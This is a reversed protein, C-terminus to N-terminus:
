SWFLTVLLGSRVDAFDVPPLSPRLRKPSRPLFFLREAFRAALAASLGVGGTGFGIRISLTVGVLAGAVSAPGLVGGASLPGAGAVVTVGGVGVSTEWTTVESTVAEGSATCLGSFRGGSITTLGEPFM